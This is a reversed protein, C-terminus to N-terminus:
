GLLTEGHKGTEPRTRQAMPRKQLPPHIASGVAKLLSIRPKKHRLRDTAFIVM